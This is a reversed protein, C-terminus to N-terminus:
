LHFRALWGASRCVRRPRPWRDGPWLFLSRLILRQSRTEAAPGAAPRLLRTPQGHGTPLVRRSREPEGRWFMWAASISEIHEPTLDGGAAEHDAQICSVDALCAAGRSRFTEPGGRRVVAAVLFYQSKLAYSDSPAIAECAIVDDLAQRILAPTTRRSASWGSLRDLLTKHWNVAEYRRYLPGSHTALHITRLYARYWAWTGIMDGQDELRSAELLALRQLPALTVDRSPRGSPLFLLNLGDPKEAAQRYLDLAARNAEM